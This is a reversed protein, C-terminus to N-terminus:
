GVWYERLSDLGVELRKLTQDVSEKKTVGTNSCPLNLAKQYRDHHWRAMQNSNCFHFVKGSSDTFTCPEDFKPIPKKCYDCRYRGTGLREDLM